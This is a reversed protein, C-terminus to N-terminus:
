GCHVDVHCIEFKRAHADIHGIEILGERFYSSIETVTDPCRFDRIDSPIINTSEHIHLIIDKIGNLQRKFM